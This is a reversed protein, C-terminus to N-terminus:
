YQEENAVEEGADALDASVNAPEDAAAAKIAANLLTPKLHPVRVIQKITEFQPQLAPLLQRLEKMSEQFQFCDLLLRAVFHWVQAHVLPTLTYPQDSYNVALFELIVAEDIDWKIAVVADSSVTDVRRELSDVPDQHAKGQKLQPEVSITPGKDIGAVKADLAVRKLLAPESTTPPDVARRKSAQKSATEGMLKDVTAALLKHQNELSMLEAAIREQQAEIAELKTTSVINARM